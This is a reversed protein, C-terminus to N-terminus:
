PQGSSYRGMREKVEAETMGMWRLVLANLEVDCPVCIPRFLGGDACVQWQHYAARGCRFCPLRKVGDTTYPKRRGHRKWTM